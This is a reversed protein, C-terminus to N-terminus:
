LDYELQIRHSKDAIVRAQEDADLGEDEAKLGALEYIADFVQWGPALLANEALQADLRADERGPVASMLEQLFQDNDHLAIALIPHAKFLEPAEKHLIEATLRNEKLRYGAGYGSNNVVDLIKRIHTKDQRRLEAFHDASHKQAEAYSSVIRMLLVCLGTMVLLAISLFIVM